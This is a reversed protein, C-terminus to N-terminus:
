SKTIFNSEAHQSTVNNPDTARMLTAHLGVDADESIGKQRMKSGIFSNLCVIAVNSLRWRMDLTRLADGIRALIFAHMLLNSVPLLCDILTEHAPADQALHHPSAIELAM